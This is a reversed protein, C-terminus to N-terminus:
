RKRRRIAWARRGPRRGRGGLRGLRIQGIEDCGAVLVPDLGEERALVLQVGGVGLAGIREMAGYLLARGIGHLEEEGEAGLGLDLVLRAQAGEPQRDVLAGVVAHLDEDSLPASMKLASGEPTVARSAARALPPSMREAAKLALFTLACPLLRCAARWM